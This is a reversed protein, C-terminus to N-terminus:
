PQWSPPLMPDREPWEQLLNAFCWDPQYYEHLAGFRELDRGFLTIMKEALSRADADFGYKVLGRFTM